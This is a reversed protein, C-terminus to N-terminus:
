AMAPWVSIVTIPGGCRLRPITMEALGNAGSRHDGGVVAVHQLVWGTCHHEVLLRHGSLGAIVLYLELGAPTCSMLSRESLLVLHEFLDDSRVCLLCRGLRALSGWCVHSDRPSVCLSLGGALHDAKCVTTTVQCCEQGSSWFYYAFNANQCIRWKKMVFMTHVYSWSAGGGHVHPQVM